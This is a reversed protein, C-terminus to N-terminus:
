EALDYLTGNTGIALLSEFQGTSAFAWCAGCSGQNKVPTVRGYNRWDFSSPSAFLSTSLM